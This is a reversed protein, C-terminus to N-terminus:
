NQADRSAIGVTLHVNPVDVIEGEAGTLWGARIAATYLMDEGYRGYGINELHREGETLRYGPGASSRQAPGHVASV